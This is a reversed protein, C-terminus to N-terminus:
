ELDVAGNNHRNIFKDGVKISKWVEKGHTSIAWGFEDREVEDKASMQSLIASVKSNFNPSLIFGGATMRSSIEATTLTNTTHETLMYLIAWRMSMDSYDVTSDLPGPTDSAAKDTKVAVSQIGNILADLEELRKALANIESAIPKRRATLDALVAIYHENMNKKGERVQGERMYHPFPSARFM